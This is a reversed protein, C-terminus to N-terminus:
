SSAYYIYIYVCVCMSMCACIRKGFASILTLDRKCMFVHVYYMCVCMCCVCLFTGDYNQKGVASMCRPDRKLRKEVQQEM